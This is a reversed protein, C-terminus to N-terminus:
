GQFSIVRMQLVIKKPLFFLSHSFTEEGILSCFPLASNNKLHLIFELPSLKLDTRIFEGPKPWCYAVHCLFPQLISSHQFDMLVENQVLLTVVSIPQGVYWHTLTHRKPISLLYSVSGIQSCHPLSLIGKMRIFRIFGAQIYAM